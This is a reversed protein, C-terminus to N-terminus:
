VDWDKEHNSVKENPLVFACIIAAVFLVFIFVLMAMIRYHKFKSDWLYIRDRLVCLINEGINMKEVREREFVHNEAFIKSM